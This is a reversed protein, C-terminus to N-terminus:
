SINLKLKKTWKTCCNPKCDDSSLISYYMQTGKHVSYIIKLHTPADSAYNDNVEIENTNM